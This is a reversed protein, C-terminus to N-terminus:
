VQRFDFGSLQAHVKFFHFQATQSMIDRLVKLMHRIFFPQMQLDLDLLIDRFTDVSVALSDFLNDFIKEGIADLKSGLSPNSHMDTTRCCPCVEGHTLSEHSIPIRTAGTYAEAGRRGHGKRKKPPETEDEATASDEEGEAPPTEDKFVIATKETSAGFLISRLRSISIEKESLAQTVRAYGETIGVILDYDEDELTHAKVRDIFAETEEVDLVVARGEKM